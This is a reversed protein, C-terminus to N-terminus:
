PVDSGQVVYYGENLPPVTISKIKAKAKESRLTKASLANEFKIDAIYKAAGSVKIEHDSKVVSRSIEKISKKMEMDRYDDNKIKEKDTVCVEM